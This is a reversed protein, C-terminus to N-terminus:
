TGLHIGLHGLYMLYRPREVKFPAIKLWGELGPTMPPPINWLAFIATEDGLSENFSHFRHLLELHDCGGLDRELVDAADCRSLSGSSM